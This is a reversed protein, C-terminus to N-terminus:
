PGSSISHAPMTRTAPSGCVKQATQSRSPWRRSPACADQAAAPDRQGVASNADGVALDGDIEDELGRALRDLDDAAM